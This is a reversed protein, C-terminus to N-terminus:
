VNVGGNGLYTDAYKKSFTYAGLSILMFLFFLSKIGSLEVIAGSLVVPIMTAVTVLFWFNGFVRGRLGGPTAEQLYTQAPIMIGVFASGSLAIVFFSMVIRNIQSLAPILFIMLLFLLGLGMLSNDILKKKRWGRKILKPALFAGIMAGIGAPVVVFIGALDVSIGVMDQAIAPVLVVIVAVCVQIGLLLLFPFLIKKNEKIFKYGEFIRKFFSLIKNEFVKTELTIKMRPLFIVSIFALFLLFACLYLSNTFGLFKNLFGAIGFGLVMSGQQTLFFLANAHPYNEKKVLAPLSASEAPVYFQNLFSYIMAVGYLLFTRGEQVFAFLFITLSQLLNTYILMKRRDFIDVSAAAIPGIIIAPISYAIWLFSTAISSGTYQFLKLILLFNMINITIQSLMQSSWLYLFKKNKLVYKYEGVM